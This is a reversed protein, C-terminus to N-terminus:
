EKKPKESKVKKAAASGFLKSGFTAYLNHTIFFVAVLVQAKKHPELVGESMSTNKFFHYFTAAVLATTMNQQLGTSEIATLGKDFPLFAGGCGAIGGCIIPGFVAMSEFDSPAIAKGASLTMKCVVFARMTEYMCIVAAKFVPSLGLIERLIPVYQHLLFSCTIAIPYADTALTVPIANILLPVLIGGGTCQFIMRIFKYSMSSEPPLSGWLKYGHFYTYVLMFMYKIEHTNMLLVEAISSDILWGTPDVGAAKEEAVPAPPPTEM